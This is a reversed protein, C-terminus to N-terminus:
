AFGALEGLYPFFTDGNTFIWEPQLSSDCIVPMRSYTHNHCPFQSVRNHTIRSFSHYFLQEAQVMVRERHVTM